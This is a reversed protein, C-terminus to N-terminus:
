WCLGNQITKYGTCYSIFWQVLNFLKFMKSVIEHCCQLLGDPAPKPKPTDDAGHVCTFMARVGNVDLVREAYEVCANTLAGITWPDMKSQLKELLKAIGPYLAATKKSVLDIYKRDFEQALNEGAKRDCM